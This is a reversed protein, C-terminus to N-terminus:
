HDMWGTISPQDPTPRGEEVRGSLSRSQSWRWRACSTPSLSNRRSASPVQPTEAEFEPDTWATGPFLLALAMAVFYSAAAVSALLFMPLTLPGSGLLIVLALGIRRLDGDADDAWQPVQCSSALAPEVSAAQGYRSRPRGSRARRLQVGGCLRHPIKRYGDSVGKGNMPFPRAPPRGWVHPRSTRAYIGGPSGVPSHSKCTWMGSRM